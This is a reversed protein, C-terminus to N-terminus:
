THSIWRRRTRKTLKTSTVHRHVCRIQFGMPEGSESNHTLTHTNRTNNNNHSNMEVRQKTGHQDHFNRVCFGCMTLIVLHNPFWRNCNWSWHISASNSYCCCCCRSCRRRCCRFHSASLKVLPPWEVLFVTCNKENSNYIFEFKRLIQDISERMNARECLWEWAVKINM